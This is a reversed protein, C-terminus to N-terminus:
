DLLDFDHTRPPNPPVKIMRSGVLVTEVLRSAVAEAHHQVKAPPKKMDEKNDKKMPVALELEKSLRLPEQDEPSM